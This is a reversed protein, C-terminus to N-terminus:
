ICRMFLFELSYFVFLIIYLYIINIIFNYKYFALAFYFIFHLHLPVCITDFCIFRVSTCFANRVVWDVLFLSTSIIWLSYIVILQPTLSSYIDVFLSSVLVGVAFFLVEVDDLVGKKKIYICYIYVKFYTSLFLIFYLLKAYNFIFIMRLSMLFIPIMILNVM